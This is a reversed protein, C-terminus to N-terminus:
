LEAYDRIISELQEGAEQRALLRSAPNELAQAREFLPELYVEEGFGRVQLGERALSLVALLLQKLQEADVFAPFEGRRVLLKRLERASFGHGYLVTDTELLRLLAEVQKPAILGLHFAPVTLADRM